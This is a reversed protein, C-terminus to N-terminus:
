GARSCLGGELPSLPGRTQLFCCFITWGPNTGRVLNILIFLKYLPIPLTTTTVVPLDGGRPRSNPRYDVVEVVPHGTHQGSELRPEFLGINKIGPITLYMALVFSLAWGGPSLPSVLPSADAHSGRISGRGRPHCVSL